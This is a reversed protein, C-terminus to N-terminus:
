PAFGLVEMGELGVMLAEDARYAPVKPFKKSESSGTTTTCSKIIQIGIFHLVIVSATVEPLLVSSAIWDIIRRTASDQRKV